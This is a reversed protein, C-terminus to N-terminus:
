LSNAFTSLSTTRIAASPEFGWIKGSCPFIFAEDETALARLITNSYLKSLEPDSTIMDSVDGKCIRQMIHCTVGTKPDNLRTSQTYRIYDKASQLIKGDARADQVNCNHVLIGNAFFNHNNLTQIDYVSCRRERVSKALLRTSTAKSSLKQVINALQEFFQEEQQPRYSSGISEVAKDGGRIRLIYRHMRKCWLLFLYLQGEGFSEDSGAGLRSLISCDVGWRELKSQERWYLEGVSLKEFVSCFLMTCYFEEISHVAKWLKQLNEGRNAIAKDGVSASMRDFLVEGWHSEVEEWMGRLEDCEGFVASSTKCQLMESQLLDRCSWAGTDREGIGLLAENGGKWLSRLDSSCVIKDELKRCVKQLGRSFKRLSGWLDQLDEKDAKRFHAGEKIDCIRTYGGDEM